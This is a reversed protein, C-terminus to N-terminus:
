VPKNEMNNWTEYIEAFVMSDVNSMAKEKSELLPKIMAEAQSSLSESLYSYFDEMDTNHTLGASEKAFIQMQSTSAEIVQQYAEAIAVLSVSSVGHAKLRVIMSELDELIFRATREKMQVLQRLINARCAPSEEEKLIDMAEAEAAHIQLELVTTKKLGFMHM